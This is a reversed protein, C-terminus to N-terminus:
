NSIPEKKIRFNVEKPDGPSWGSKLNIAQFSDNFESVQFRGKTLGTATLRGIQNLSQLKVM